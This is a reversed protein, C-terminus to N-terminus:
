VNIQYIAHTTEQDLVCSISQACQLFQFEFVNVCSDSESYHIMNILIIINIMLIFIITNMGINIINVNSTNICYRM